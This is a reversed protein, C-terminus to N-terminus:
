SACGAQTSTEKTLVDRQSTRSPAADAGAIGAVITSFVLPAIISKILNIFVDRLFYVVNGWDPRDCRRCGARDHDADDFVASVV